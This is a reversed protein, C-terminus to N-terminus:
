AIGMPASQAIAHEYNLYSESNVQASSLGFGLEGASQKPVANGAGQLTTKTTVSNPLLRLVALGAGADGVAHGLPQPGKTASAPPQGASAPPPVPTTPYAQGAFAPAASLGLVAVAAPMAIVLPLRRRM